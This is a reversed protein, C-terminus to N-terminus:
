SRGHTTAPQLMRLAAGIVVFVAGLAVQMGAVGFALVSTFLSSRILAADRAFEAMPDDEPLEGYARGGTANLTLQRIVDAEEFATLPGRVVRNAFRPATAPVVIKEDALQSRVTLWAGLGALIQLVGAATVLSGLRTRYELMTM